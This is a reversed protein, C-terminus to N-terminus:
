RIAESASTFLKGYLIGERWNSMVASRISEKAMIFVGTPSFGFAKNLFTFGLSANQELLLCHINFPLIDM